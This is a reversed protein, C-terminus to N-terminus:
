QVILQRDAVRWVEKCTDAIFNESHSVIVYGGNFKRLAETLAEITETDLFNTPEDLCVIHPRTWFSAALMVKSRQGSSLMEIKRKTSVEEPLGFDNFHHVLERRTLMREPGTGWVTAMWRDYEEVMYEVGLTKLRSRKEFTNHAPGLGSWSVEYLADKGDKGSAQRGLIAEVEKGCKGHRKALERIRRAQGETINAFHQQPLAEIDYGRRFRLQMYELPTCQMFDGMQSEHHQAIYVLRLSPNSWIEGAIPQLKGSILSLLTSKGVGNKGIIGVRSTPLLEAEVNEFLPQDSEMHKFSVKRLAMAVPLQGRSSPLKEPSPFILGTTLALPVLHHEEAASQSM